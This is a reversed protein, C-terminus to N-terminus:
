ILRSEDSAEFRCDLDECSGKGPKRHGWVDGFSSQQVNMRKVRVGGEPCRLATPAWARALGRPRDSPVKAKLKAYIDIDQRPFPRSQGNRSILVLRGEPATPLDRTIGLLSLM